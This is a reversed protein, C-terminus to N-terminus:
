INTMFKILLHYLHILFILILSLIEDIRRYWILQLNYANVDVRAGDACLKELPFDIKGEFGGAYASFLVLSFISFELM